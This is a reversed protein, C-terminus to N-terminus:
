LFFLKGGLDGVAATLLSVEVEIFERRCISKAEEEDWVVCEEEQQLYKSPGPPPDIKDLSLPELTKAQRKSSGSKGGIGVRGRKRYM